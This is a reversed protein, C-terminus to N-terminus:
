MLGSKGTISSCPFCFSSIELAKAAIYTNPHPVNDTLLCQDLYRNSTLPSVPGHDVIHRQGLHTLSLKDPVIKTPICRHYSGHTIFDCLKGEIVEM